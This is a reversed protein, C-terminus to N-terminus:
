MTLAEYYRFINYYNVFVGILDERESLRCDKVLLLIKKKMSRHYRVIQSQTM